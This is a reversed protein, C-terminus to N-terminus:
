ALAIIPLLSSHTVVEFRSLPTVPFDSVGEDLLHSIPQSAPSGPGRPSPSRLRPVSTEVCLHQQRRPGRYGQVRRLPSGLEELRHEGM